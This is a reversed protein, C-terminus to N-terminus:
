LFHYTISMYYILVWYKKMIYKMIEKPIKIYDVEVPIPKSRTTKGKLMHIDKGFIKISNKIDEETVPCNNIMNNKVMNIFDRHSPYGVMAYLDRAKKARTIQRETYGLMNEEVTNMLNVQRNTTDHYYLGNDSSTFYIKKDRKHVIFADERSSDYTVKYKQKMNNLCLINTIAREDYWVWGYGNLYGKNNISIEGANTQLIISEQTTKIEEM